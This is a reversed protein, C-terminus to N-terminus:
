VKLIDFNLNTVANDIFKEINGAGWQDSVLVKEGSALKIEEGSNVYYRKIAGVGKDEPSVADSLRVVGKAGQLTDPFVKQLDEFTVSPNDAVYKQVVALVLKGKGYIKGDFTYKSYDRNDSVNLALKMSTRDEPSLNEDNALM